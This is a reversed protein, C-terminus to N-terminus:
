KKIENRIPHLASAPQFANRSLVSLLFLGLRTWSCQQTFSCNSSGVGNNQKRESLKPWQTVYYRASLRFEAARRVYPPPDLQHRSRPTWRPSFDTARAVCNSADRQCNRAILIWGALNPVDTTCLATSESQVTRVNCKKGVISTCKIAM